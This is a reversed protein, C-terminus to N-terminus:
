DYECSRKQWKIITVDRRPRYASRIQENAVVLAAPDEGNDEEGRDEAGELIDQSGIEEVFALLYSRRLYAGPTGWFKRGLHDKLIEEHRGQHHSRRLM